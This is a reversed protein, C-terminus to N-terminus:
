PIRRSARFQPDLGKRGNNSVPGNMMKRNDSYEVCARKIENDSKAGRFQVFQLLMQESKLSDWLLGFKAEDNFKAKSYLKDARRLFNQIDGGDYEIFIAEKM